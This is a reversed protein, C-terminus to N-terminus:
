KQVLPEIQERLAEVRAVSLDIPTNTHALVRGIARIENHTLPKPQSQLKTTQTAKLM